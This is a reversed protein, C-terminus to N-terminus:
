NSSSEIEFYSFNLQTAAVRHNADCDQDSSLHASFLPDNMFFLNFKGFVVLFVVM